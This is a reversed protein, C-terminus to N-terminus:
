RRNGRLRRQRDQISSLSEGDADLTSAKPGGVAQTVGPSPRPIGTAQAGGPSSAPQVTASTAPSAAASAGTGTIRARSGVPLIELKEREKGRTIWAKDREVSALFAGPEIEEMERFAKPEKMGNAWLIARRVAPSSSAITGVLLFSTRPAQSGSKADMAPLRSALRMGDRPAFLNNWEAAPTAPVDPGAPTAAAQVTGKPSYALLGLYRTLIVGLSSGAVVIAIGVVALYVSKMGVGPFLNYPLMM